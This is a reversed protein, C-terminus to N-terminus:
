LALMEQTLRKLLQRSFYLLYRAWLFNLTVLIRSLDDSFDIMNEYSHNYTNTQFIKQCLLVDSTVDQDYELGIERRNEKAM